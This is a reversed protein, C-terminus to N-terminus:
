TTSQMRTKASLSAMRPNPRGWLALMSCSPVTASRRSRSRTATPRMSSTSQWGASSGGLVVVADYIVSPANAAARNVKQPNGTSDAIMGAHAAILEILAEQAALADM